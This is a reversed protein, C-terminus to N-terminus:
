NDEDNSQSGEDTGELEGNDANDFNSDEESSEDFESEIDGKNIYSIDDDVDPYIRTVTVRPFVIDQALNTDSYGALWFKESIIRKEIAQKKIHCLLDIPKCFREANEHAMGQLTFKNKVDQISLVCVVVKEPPSNLSKPVKSNALYTTPDFFTVFKNYYKDM